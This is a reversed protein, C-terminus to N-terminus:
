IMVDGGSSVGLLQNFLVMVEGDGTVKHVANQLNCIETKTFVKEEVDEKLTEDKPMEMSSLFMGRNEAWKIESEVRALYFNVEHAEHLCESFHDTGEQRWQDSYKKEDVRLDERFAFLEKLTKTGELRLRYSM